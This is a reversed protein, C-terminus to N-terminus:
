LVFVLDSDVTPRVVRPPTPEAFGFDTGFRQRIIGFHGGEGVDDHILGSQDAQDATQVPHSDHQNGNPLRSIFQASELMWGLYLSRLFVDHFNPAPTM